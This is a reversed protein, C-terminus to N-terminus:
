MVEGDNLIRDNAISKATCENRRINSNIAAIELGAFLMGVPVRLETKDVFFGRLKQCITLRDNRDVCLFFLIDAVKLVIPRFVTRGLIGPFHHVVVEWQGFQPFHRWVAYIDQVVVGAKDVESDAM